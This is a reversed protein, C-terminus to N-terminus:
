LKQKSRALLRIEKETSRFNFDLLIFTLFISFRDLIVALNGLIILYLFHM